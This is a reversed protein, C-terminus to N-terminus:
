RSRKNARDAQRFLEDANRVNPNLINIEPATKHSFVNVGVYREAKSCNVCTLTDPLIELREHPIECGCGECKRFQPPKVYEIDINLNELAEFDEPHSTPHGM